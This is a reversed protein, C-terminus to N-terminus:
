IFLIPGGSPINHISLIKKDFDEFYSKDDEDAYKDWLEDYTKNQLDAVVSKKIKYFYHRYGMNNM